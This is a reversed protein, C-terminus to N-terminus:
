LRILQKFNWDKSSFLQLFINTLVRLIYAVSLILGFVIITNLPYWKNYADTIVSFQVIYIEYTLSSVFFIFPWIKYSALKSCWKYSVVKYSYYLFSLLPLAALLQIYYWNDTKGKGFIMIVFYMLFSVACLIFDVFLNKTIIREKYLSINVGLMMSSFYCIYHFSHYISGNQKPLILILIATLIITIALIQKTYKKFYKIIFYIISFSIIFCRVFWYEGALLFDYWNINKAFILNAFVFFVILTPWLRIIKKKIWYDFRVYKGDKNEINTLFFGSVFFFLANGHVGLTAFSINHNEYLPIYHSNTIMIAAIFKLIDIGYNRDKM